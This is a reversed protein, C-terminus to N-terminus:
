TSCAPLYAPRHEIQRYRDVIIKRQRIVNLTFMRLRSERRSSPLLTTLVKKMGFSFEDSAM